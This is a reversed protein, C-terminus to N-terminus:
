YLRRRADYRPRGPPPQGVPQKDRGDGRGDSDAAKDAVEPSGRSQDAQDSRDITM